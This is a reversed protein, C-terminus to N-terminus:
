KVKTIFQNVVSLDAAITIPQWTTALVTAPLFVSLETQDLQDPEVARIKARDLTDHLTDVLDDWSWQGTFRPTTCLLLTQPPEANPKDFHFAVGTTETEAPIVETWEDLLLGGQPQNKNFGVPYIYECPVFQLPPFSLCTAKQGFPVSPYLAAQM